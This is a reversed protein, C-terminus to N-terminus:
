EFAKTSYPNSANRVEMELMNSSFLPTGSQNIRSYSKKAKAIDEALKLGSQKKASTAASAGESSLNKFLNDDAGSIFDFTRKLGGFFGGSRVGAGVPTRIPSLQKM